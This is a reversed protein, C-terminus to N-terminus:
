PIPPAVPDDVDTCHPRSRIAAAAQKSQAVFVNSNSLATNVGAPRARISLM